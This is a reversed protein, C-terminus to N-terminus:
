TYCHAVFEDINAAEHHADLIWKIRAVDVFTCQVEILKSFKLKELSLPGLYTSKYYDSFWQRLLTQVSFLGELRQLFVIINSSALFVYLVWVKGFLFCM